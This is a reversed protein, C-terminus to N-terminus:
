PLKCTSRSSHQQSDPSTTSSQTPNPQFFFKSGCAQNKIPLAQELNKAQKIVAATTASYDNMNEISS